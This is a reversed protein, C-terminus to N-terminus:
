RRINPQGGELATKMPNRLVVPIEGMLPPELPLSDTIGGNDHTTSSQTVASTALSVLSARDFDPPTPTTHMM